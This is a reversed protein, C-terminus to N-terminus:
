CRRVLSGVPIKVSVPNDPDEKQYGERIIEIYSEVLLDADSKYDRAAPSLTENGSYATNFIFASAYLTGAELLNNIPDEEDITEPITPIPISNKRLESNIKIDAHSLAKTLTATAVPEEMNAMVENTLTTVVGPDAYTV